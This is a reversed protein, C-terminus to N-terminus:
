LLRTIFFHQLFKGIRHLIAEDVIKMGAAAAVGDISHIVAGCESIAKNVM